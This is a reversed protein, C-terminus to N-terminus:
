TSVGEKAALFEFLDIEWSSKNALFAGCEGVQSQLDPSSSSTIVVVRIAPWERSNQLLRVFDTVGMGPLESDSRLEPANSSYLPALLMRSSDFDFSETAVRAVVGPELYIVLADMSGQWRQWVSSEAPLVLISRPYLPRDRKVGESRLYFKEPPRITLVLGHRPAPPLSYEVSDSMTRYRVAQLGKWGMGYSTASAVFPILKQRAELEQLSNEEKQTTLCRKGPLLFPNRESPVKKTKMVSNHLRREKQRDPEFLRGRRFEVVLDVLVVATLVAAIILVASNM